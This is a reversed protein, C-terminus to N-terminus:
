DARIVKDPVVREGSNNRAKLEINGEVEQYAWDFILRGNSISKIRFKAFHNDVTWVVYTHGVIAQAYKVNEGTKMPVWGSKPAYKIDYIDITKGMDQIDAEEGWVDVYYTGNYNEFFFDVDKSDYAVVLNKAFSYGSNNPSTKYDFLSVNYGEPRPTGYAVDRSLESEIGDYNYATVAYYYTVGNNADYDIFHTSSTNGILKYKGDYSYSYYVNYGIVDRDMSSDWYIDVRGDGILTSVNKPPDPQYENFHDFMRHCGTFILASVFLVTLSIRSLTKM